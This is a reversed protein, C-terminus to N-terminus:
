VRADLRSLGAARAARYAASMEDATPRRNISQYRPKGDRAIEGVQYQPRYQGM